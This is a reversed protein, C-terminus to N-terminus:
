ALIDKLVEMEVPKVIHCDLGEALSRQIQQEQANGSMACIKVKNGLLERMRRALEYGSMESTVLHLFVLQPQVQGFTELAEASNHAVHVEHGMSRLLLALTEAADEHKDVILIRKASM